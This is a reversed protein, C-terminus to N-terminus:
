SVAPNRTVRGAQPLTFYFTAGRGPASEAWVRGGHRLIVRRVTALGIGTGAFDREHHLRQFAGFLKDAYTMDFGAGDDRVFYAQEGTHAIVGLEVRASPQKGTFKWANELLNHLALRLLGADGRASLGPAAVFTVARSPNALALEDAISRALATLDVRELRMESRTIRSLALLDDILAAMRQAAARVRALHGQAEANLQGAHDELLALSFGDISRLPARLDHSVSYAFANLEANAAELEAAYAKLAAEGRLRESIDSFAAIAFAVRRETDFVPAAWVEIPVPGGPRHIEIDAVHGREGALARVIPQREPPYPESTGAVFAHYVEPLEAATTGSVIDKGLIDCSAQNAYYPRGTGDIVFVAVPMADLIQFLRDEGEKVALEARLLGQATWLILAGFLTIRIVTFLATGYASDYLGAQEGRVRIWGLGILIIIALALLRRAGAGAASRSMLIRMFGREPRSWVVGIALALTAVASNLAMTGYAVRGGYAHAAIGLLAVVGAAVVLLESGVAPLRGRVDRVLWGAGLLTIALATPAAIRDEGVRSTFLVQDIGPDFGFVYGALRILGILGAAAAACRAIWGASGRVAGPAVALAIGLLLCSVATMPNMTAEGLGFAKLWPIDFQWGVLAAFAITIAVLAAVPPVAPYTLSSGSLARGHEEPKPTMLVVHPVARQRALADVRLPM